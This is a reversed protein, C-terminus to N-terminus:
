EGRKFQKRASFECMFFTRKRVPTAGTRHVLRKVGTADREDLRVDAIKKGVNVIQDGGQLFGRRRRLSHQSGFRSLGMAFPRVQGSFKLGQVLERDLLPM